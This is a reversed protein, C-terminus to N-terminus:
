VKFTTSPAVPACTASRAMDIRHFVDDKIAASVLQQPVYVDFQAETLGLSRLVSKAAEGINSTHASVPVQTREPARRRRFWRGFAGQGGEDQSLDKDNGMPGIIFVSFRGGALRGSFQSM